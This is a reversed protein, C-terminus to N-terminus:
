ALTGQPPTPAVFGTPGSNPRIDFREGIYGDYGGVFHTNKSRTSSLGEEHEDDAMESMISKSYMFTLAAFGAYLVTLVMCMISFAKSSRYQATDKREQDPEGERQYDRIQNNQDSSLYDTLARLIVCLFLEMTRVM